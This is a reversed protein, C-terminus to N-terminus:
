HHNKREIWYNSNAKRAQSCLNKRPIDMIVAFWKKSGHHRFVQFGPYKAFLNEGTTSYTNTLYAALEGRTM